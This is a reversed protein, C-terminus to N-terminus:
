YELEPQAAWKVSFPENWILQRMRDIFAVTVSAGEFDNEAWAEVISTWSVGRDYLGKHVSRWRVYDFSTSKGYVFWQMAYLMEEVVYTLDLLYDGVYMNSVNWYSSWQPTPIHNELAFLGIRSENAWYHLSNIDDLLAM